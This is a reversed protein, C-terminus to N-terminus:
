SIRINQAFVFWEIGILVIAVLSFWRWLERQSQGFGRGGDLNGTGIVVDSRVALASEGADLVSVGIQQGDIEILGASGIPGVAQEGIRVLENTTYM